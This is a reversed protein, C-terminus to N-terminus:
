VQVGKEALYEEIDKVTVLGSVDEDPIEIDFTDEFDVVINMVDFSNLELDNQLNSDETILSKEVETYQILIEKIAELM